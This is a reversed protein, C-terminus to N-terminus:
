SLLMWTVSAILGIFGAVAMAIFCREAIDMPGDGDHGM